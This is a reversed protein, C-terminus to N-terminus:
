NFNEMKVKSCLNPRYKTQENDIVRLQFQVNYCPVSSGEVHVPLNDHRVNKNSFNLSISVHQLIPKGTVNLLSLRDFLDTQQDSRAAVM